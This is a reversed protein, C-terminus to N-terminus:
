QAKRESWCSKFNKKEKKKQWYNSVMCLKDSAFKLREGTRVRHKIMQFARDSFCVDTFGAFIEITVNRALLGNSGRASSDLDVMSIM